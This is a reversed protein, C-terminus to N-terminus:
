IMWQWLITCQKGDVMKKMMCWDYPNREFRWGELTNSLEKWFQLSADLTGYLAKNLEVYMEKRYWTSKISNQM